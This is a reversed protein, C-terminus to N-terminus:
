LTDKDQQQADVLHLNVIWHDNGRLQIIQLLNTNIILPNIKKKKKRRRGWILSSHAMQATYHGRQRRPSKKRARGEPLLCPFFFRLHGPRSNSPTNDSVELNSDSAALIKTM